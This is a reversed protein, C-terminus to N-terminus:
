QVESSKAQKVNRLGQVETPKLLLVTRSLLSRRPEVNAVQRVASSFRLYVAEEAVCAVDIEQDHSQVLDVLCRTAETEDLVAWCM